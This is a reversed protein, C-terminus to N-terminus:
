CSGTATSCSHPTKRGAPSSVASPRCWPPFWTRPHITRACLSSSTPTRTLNGTGNPATTTRPTSTATAVGTITVTCGLEEALDASLLRPYGPLTSEECGHPAVLPALHELPIAGALTLRYEIGVHQRGRLRTSPDSHDFRKLDGSGTRPASSVRGRLRASRQRCRSCRTVLVSARRERLEHIGGQHLVQEQQSRRPRSSATNTATGGAALLEERSPESNTVHRRLTRPHVPRQDQGAHSVNPALPLEATTISPLGIGPAICVVPLNEQM